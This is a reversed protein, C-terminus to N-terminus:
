RFAEAPLAPDLIRKTVPAARTVSQSQILAVRVEYNLSLRYPKQISWWVRAKEELTLPALTVNLPEDLGALGGTLMAGSLIAQDYLVQLVRGLMRQETIRDGGWATLLYRLILAMPPKRLRYGNGDAERLKPRNRMSPDECVEYLFLTLLPPATPITGILDHLRAIPPPPATLTRMADTLLQELVTSVDSIVDSGAVRRGGGM